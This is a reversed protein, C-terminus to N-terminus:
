ARLNDARWNKISTKIERSTTLKGELVQTVLDPLEQDSAFRLAIIKGVPLVGAREAIDSGLIEKYRLREELRIVRDQVTLSQLRAALSLLAITVCFVVWVGRDWSPDQYMRVVQYGLNLLLLPTIVFHVLPYWRTHNAYTQQEAM